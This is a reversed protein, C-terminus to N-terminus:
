KTGDSRPIVVVAGTSMTLVAGNTLEYCLELVGPNHGVLIVNGDLSDLERVIGKLTELTADYIREDFRIVDADLGYAAAIIEATSRTRAAPSAVITPTAPFADMIRAAAARADDAGQWTLPRDFDRAHLHSSEAKAHRVVILTHM